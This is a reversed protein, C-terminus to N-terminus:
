EQGPTRVTVTLNHFCAIKLTKIAEEINKKMEAESTSDETQFLTKVDVSYSTM